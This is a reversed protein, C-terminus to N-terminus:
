IYTYYIFEGDVKKPTKDLLTKSRLLLFKINICLDIDQVIEMLYVTDSIKDKRKM